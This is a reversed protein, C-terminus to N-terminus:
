PSDTPSPLGLYIVKQVDQTNFDKSLVTFRSLRATDNCMIFEASVIKMGHSEIASMTQLDKELAPKLIDKIVQKKKDTEM